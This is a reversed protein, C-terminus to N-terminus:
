DWTTMYVVLTLLMLVLLAAGEALAVALIGVCVVTVIALLAAALGLFASAWSHRGGARLSALSWQCPLSVLALTAAIGFASRVGPDFGSRDVATFLAMGIATLGVAAMADAIRFRRPRSGLPLGDIPSNKV